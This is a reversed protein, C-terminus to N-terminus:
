NIEVFDILDEIPCKMYDKKFNKLSICKKNKKHYIYDSWGNKGPKIVLISNVDRLIYNSNTTPTSIKTEALTQKLNNLFDNKELKGDAILDLQHEMWATYEYNFFKQYESLLFDCIDKGKKELVLKQKEYNKQTKKTKKLDNSWTFKWQSLEIDPNEINKKSVYERDQIKQVFSSFTSPRGIKKEDLIKVLQGENYRLIKKRVSENCTISKWPVIQGKKFDHKLNHKSSQKARGEQLIRYGQFEVHEFLITYRNELMPSNMTVIVNKLQCASMLYQITRSWIIELLRKEPSSLTAESKEVRTPRICEHAGPKSKKCDTRIFNEGYKNKIWEHAKEQFSKAVFTSETRHYTILGKEYLTQALKM